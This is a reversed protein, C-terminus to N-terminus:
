SQDSTSPDEFASDIMTMIQEDTYHKTTIAKSPCAVACAGCGECLIENLSSKLIGDENEKLSYSGFVCTSVCVGCGVCLDSNHNAIISDGVIRKDHILKSAFLASALGQAIADSINIPGRCAGAIYKGTSSTEIPGYKIHKEIFFGDSDVDMGFIEAQERADEQPEMATQLVVIDPRYRITKELDSNYVDFYMQDNVDKTIESPHGKVTQVGMSRTKNYLEEYGKGFTRIDKYFLIVEIDKGYKNKMLYAHKISAICCYQSCYEYYNKDRSGVCLIFAITKPKERTSPVELKGKTPGAFNTMRALDMGTIIDPYEPDKYHYSAIISPDFPRFGTAFIMAGVKETQSTIKQSLDIANPDCVKVCEGCMGCNACYLCRSAEKKANEKTYTKIVEIKPNKLRKDKPELTLPIRNVNNAREIPIEEVVNEYRTWPKHLRSKKRIAEVKQRGAWMDEERLFRHVSEGARKGSAISEIVTLTKYYFEGCYFINPHLKSQLTIPDSIMQGEENVMDIPFIERDIYQGTALIINNCEIVSETGEKFEPAFNGEQDFISLCNLTEIRDAKGNKGLIRKVGLRTDITIGEELAGEIEEKNAQLEKKTEMCLISVNEAGYRRAVRACDFAEDSGGVVIVNKDKITKIKGALVAQLFENGNQVGKLEEGEIELKKRGVSRAAIIVADFRKTRLLGKKTLDDITTHEDHGIKVGTKLEVGMDLIMQIELDLIEKPLLYDPISYQLLGGAKEEGEFITVKYGRRALDWAATLGALGGGVIAIKEKHKKPIPDVKPKGKMLEYVYDTVFRELPKIAVPDDVIGRGCDVECNAACIRGCVAPFPNEERILDLAEKYKEKEVLNVFGQIHIDAPCGDRCPPIGKVDITYCQPVAQPFPIHIAKHMRLGEDFTSPIISPCVEACDGCANCKTLDVYRPQNVIEVEFNGVYGSISKIVSHTMLTIKPHNGVIAMKPTLICTSCAAFCTPFATCTPFAKDLQAMRGGITPEKEVLITEIGSDGIALAANIGTIGGGVVLVKPFVSDINEELPELLAVRKIAMRLLDKAKKTAKERNESVWSVQERINAMEIMFRNLGAAEVTNRFTEEFLKPSCAAIVIRDLNHNKIDDEISQQSPESCTYKQIEVHKVFSLTKAYEALENNDVISAINTGCDCIYVGIRNNGSM